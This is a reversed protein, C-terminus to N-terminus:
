GRELEKKRAYARKRIDRVREKSRYYRLREYERKQELTM